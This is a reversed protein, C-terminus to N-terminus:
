DVSEMKQSFGPSLPISQKRERQSIGAGYRAERILQLSFLLCVGVLKREVFALGRDDFQISDSSSGRLDATLIGVIQSRFGEKGGGWRSVAVLLHIEQCFFM